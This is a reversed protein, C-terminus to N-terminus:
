ARSGHGSAEPMHTGSTRALPEEVAAPLHVTFTSGVGPASRLTVRGGHSEVIRKVLSLGLGAGQIQAAIVGPTRYFPEFIRQQEAPPIGMGRDTVAIRVEKGAAEASISIAGGDAGYKIANGVLNQLLRRLAPEDALVPPLAAPM